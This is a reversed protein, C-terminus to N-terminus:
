EENQSEIVTPQLWPKHGACHVSMNKPRVFNQSNVCKLDQLLGPHAVVVQTAVLTQPPCFQLPQSWMRNFENLPIYMMPNPQIGDYEYNRDFSPHLSQGGVQIFASSNYTSPTVPQHTSIPHLQVQYQPVTINAQQNAGPRYVTPSFQISHPLGYSSPDVPLWDTTVPM